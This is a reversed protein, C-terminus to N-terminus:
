PKPGIFKSATKSEKFSLTLYKIFALPDRIKKDPDAVKLEMNIEINGEKIKRSAKYVFDNGKHFIKSIDSEITVPNVDIRHLILEIKEM